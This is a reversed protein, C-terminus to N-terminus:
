RIAGVNSNKNTHWNNRNEGLNSTIGDIIAIIGVFVFLLHCLENLIPSFEGVRLPRVSRKELIFQNFAAEQGMLFPQLIKQFHKFDQDFLVNITVQMTRTKERCCTPSFIPYMHRDIKKPLLCVSFLYNHKSNRSISLEQGQAKM